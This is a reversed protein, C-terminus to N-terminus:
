TDKGGNYLMRRSREIEHFALGCALLADRELILWADVRALASDVMAPNCQQKIAFRISEVIIQDATM